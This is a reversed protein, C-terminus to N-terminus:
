LYWIQFYNVSLSLLNIFITTLLQFKELCQCFLCCQHSWIVLHGSLWVCTPSLPHLKICPISTFVPPSFHICTSVAYNSFSIKGGPDQKKPLIKGLKNESNTHLIKGFTLYKEPNKLWVSTLVKKKPRVLIKGLKRPFKESNRTNKRTKDNKWHCKKLKLYKELNERWNKKIRLIKGSKGVLIFHPDKKRQDWCYKESNKSYKESKQTNKRIKRIRGVLIKGSKQLINGFKDSYKPVKWM